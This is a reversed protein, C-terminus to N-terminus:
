NSSPPTMNFGFDIGTERSVKGVIARMKDPWKPFAPCNKIAQILCLAVPANTNGTIVIDSINGKQNLIYKVKLMTDKPSSSGNCTDTKKFISATIQDLCDNCEPDEYLKIATERRLREDSSLAPFDKRLSAKMLRIM